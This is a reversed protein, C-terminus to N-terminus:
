AWGGLLGSKLPRPAVPGCKQNRAGCPGGPRGVAEMRHGRETAIWCAVARRDGHVM